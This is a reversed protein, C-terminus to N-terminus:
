RSNKPKKVGKEERLRDIEEWIDVDGTDQEDEQESESGIEVIQEISMGALQHIFSINVRGKHDFIPANNEKLTEIAESFARGETKSAIKAYKSIQVAQAITSSRQRSEQLSRVPAGATKSIIGKVGEKTAIILASASLALTQCVELPVNYKNDAWTLNQSDNIAEAGGAGLVMGFVANGVLEFTSQARSTEKGDLIELGAAAAGTLIGWVLPNLAQIETSQRPNIVAFGCRGLIIAHPLAEKALGLSISRGNIDEFADLPSPGTNEFFQPHEVSM